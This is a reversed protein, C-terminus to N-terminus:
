RQIARLKLASWGLSQNTSAYHMCVLIKICSNSGCRCTAEDQIERQGDATNNSSDPRDTAVVVTWAPAEVDFGTGDAAAEKGKEALLGALRLWGAM